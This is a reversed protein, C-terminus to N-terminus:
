SQFTSSYSRQFNQFEITMLIVPVELGKGKMQLANAKRGWLIQRKNKKKESSFPGQRGGRGRFFPFTNKGKKKHQVRYLEDDETFLFNKLAEGAKTRDTKTLYNVVDLDVIVFYCDYLLREPNKHCKICDILSTDNCSVDPFNWLCWISFRFWDTCGTQVPHNQPCMESGCLICNITEWKIRWFGESNDDSYSNPRQVM